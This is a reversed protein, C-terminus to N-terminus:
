GAEQFEEPIGVADRCPKRKAVPTNKRRAGVATSKDRQRAEADSKTKEILKEEVKYLENMAEDFALKNGKLLDNEYSAIERAAERRKGEDPFTLELHELAITPAGQRLAVDLASRLWKRTFGILGLAGTMLLQVNGVLDPPDATPILPEMRLLATAFHKRDHPDSCNYSHLFMETSRHANQFSLNRLRMLLPAGILVLPTARCIGIVPDLVWELDRSSIKVLNHGDDFFVVIPRRHKVYNKYSRLYRDAAARSPPPLEAGPIRTAPLKCEVLPEDCAYLLGRLCAPWTLSVNPMDIEYDVLLVRGKDRELEHKFENYLQKIVERKLASKGLGGPGIVYILSEPGAHLIAPVLEKVAEEFHHHPIYQGDFFALKQKISGELIDKPVKSQM